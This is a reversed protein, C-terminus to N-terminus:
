PSAVRFAAPARAKKRGWVISARSVLSATACAKIAYATAEHCRRLGTDIKRDWQDRIYGQGDESLLGYSQLAMIPTDVLPVRLMENAFTPLKYLKKVMPPSQRNSAPKSWEAKLQKQFFIPFPFVKDQLVGKPFFEGGGTTKNRIDM